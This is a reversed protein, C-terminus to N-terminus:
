HQVRHIPCGSDSHSVVVVVVVVVFVFRVFSCVFSRAVRYPRASGANQITALRRSVPRRALTALECSLRSSRLSREYYFAAACCFRLVKPIRMCTFTLTINIALTCDCHARCSSTFALRAYLVLFFLRYQRLAAETQIKDATHFLMCVSAPETASEENCISVCRRRVHKCASNERHYSSM